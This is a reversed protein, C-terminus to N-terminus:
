KVNFTEDLEEFKRNCNLISEDFKIFNSDSFKDVVDKLPLLQGCAPCYESDDFIISKVVPDAMEKSATYLEDFQETALEWQGSPTSPYRFQFVNATMLTQYFIHPDVGFDDCYNMLM